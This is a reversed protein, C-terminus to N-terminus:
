KLSRRFREALLSFSYKHEKVIFNHAEEAFKNITGLRTNKGGILLMEVEQGMPEYYVRKTKVYPHRELWGILDPKTDVIVWHPDVGFENYVWYNVYPNLTIKVKRNTIKYKTPPTIADSLKGTDEPVREKLSSYTVAGYDQVLDASDKKFDSISKNYKKMKTTLGKFSASFSLMPM